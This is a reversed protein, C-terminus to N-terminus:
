NRRQHKTPAPRRGVLFPLGGEVPAPLVGHESRVDCSLKRVFRNGQDLINTGFSNPVEGDLVLTGVFNRLDDPPPDVVFRKM